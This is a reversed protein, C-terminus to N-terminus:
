SESTAHGTLSFFVEDLSPNGLAFDGLEIGSAILAALAKNAEVADRVAISLRADELNCQATGGLQAQLLRAAEDLRAPDVLAVHLRGSGIATKM